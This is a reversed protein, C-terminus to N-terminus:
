ECCPVEEKCGVNTDKAGRWEWHDVKVVDCDDIWPCLEGTGNHMSSFACTECCKYIDKRATDLKAQLATVQDDLMRLRKAAEHILHRLVPPLGAYKVILEEALEKTSM